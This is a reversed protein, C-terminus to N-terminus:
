IYITRYLFQKLKFMKIWQSKVTINISLLVHSSKSRTILNAEMKNKKNREKGGHAKIEEDKTLKFENGKAVSEM